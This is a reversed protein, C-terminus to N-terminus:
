WVGGDLEAPGPDGGGQKVWRVFGRPHRLITPVIAPSLIVFLGALMALDRLVCFGDRVKGLLASEGDRALHWVFPFIVVFLVLESGGIFPEAATTMSDAAREFAPQTGPNSLAAITANTIETAVWFAVGLLAFLFPAVFWGGGQDTDEKVATTVVTHTAADDPESPEEWEDNELAMELAEELGAEDIWGENYWRHATEVTPTWESPDDVRRRQIEIEAEWSQDHGAFREVDFEQEQETM